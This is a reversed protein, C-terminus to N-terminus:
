DWTLRRAVQWVIRVLSTFEGEGFYGAQLNAVNIVFLLGQKKILKM